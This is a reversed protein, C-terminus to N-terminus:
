KTAKKAFGSLTEPDIDRGKAIRQHFNVHIHLTENMTGILLKILFTGHGLFLIQFFYLACGKILILDRSM